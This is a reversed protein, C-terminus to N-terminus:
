VLMAELTRLSANHDVRRLSCACSDSAQYPVGVGVKAEVARQEEEKRAVLESIDSQVGIYSTLRGSSDFVPTVSLLNWFSAGDKRYNLLQVTCKHHQLLAKRLRSLAAGDTGPGQLFRCNRGLM